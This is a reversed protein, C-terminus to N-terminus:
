GQGLHQAVEVVRHADEELLLPRLLELLAVQAEDARADELVEHGAAGLGIGEVREAVDPLGLHGLGLGLGLGM